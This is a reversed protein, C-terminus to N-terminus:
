VPHVKSRRALERRCICQAYSKFVIYRVLLFIHLYSLVFVLKSLSSRMKMELVKFTSFEATSSSIDQFLAFLQM